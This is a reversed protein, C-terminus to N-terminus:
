IAAPLRPQRRQPMSSLCVTSRLVAGYRHRPHLRYKEHLVPVDVCDLLIGSSLHAPVMWVSIVLRLPMELM